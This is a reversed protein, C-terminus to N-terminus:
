NTIYTYEQRFIGKGEELYRFLYYFLINYVTILILILM